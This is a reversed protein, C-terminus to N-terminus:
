LRVPQWGIEQQRTGEARDLRWRPAQVLVAVDHGHSILKLALQHTSSQAGGALQPLYADGTTLLVRM